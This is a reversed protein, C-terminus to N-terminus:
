TSEYLGSGTAFATKEKDAERIPVQWYGSAMDLTTFFCSGQLMDLVDDVRPLPHVDKKTAANVKRYDVCFRWSGDRKRVLVVPSSWPSISERVVGKELMEGVQVEILRREAASNRYPYQRVPKSGQTDIEHEIANTHGLDRDPDGFLHEYEQLLARFTAGFAPNLHTGYQVDGVRTDPIGPQKASIEVNLLPTVEGIAAGKAITIATATPNAIRICTAHNQVDALVRAVNPRVKSPMPSLPEILCAGNESVTVPLRIESFPPVQTNEQCYAILKNNAFMHSGKVTLKLSHGGLTVMRRPFSIVMESHRCLPLGGLLDYPFSDLVLLTERVEVPGVQISLEVEGAARVLRGNVDKIVATSASMEAGIRSIFSRSAINVSAGTDIIMETEQGEVSVPITILHSPHYTASVSDSKTAKPPVGQGRGLLKGAGPYRAPSGNRASASQVAAPYPRTTQLPLM